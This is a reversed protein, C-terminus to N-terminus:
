KLESKIQALVQTKLSSDDSRFVYLGGDLNGTTRHEMNFEKFFQLTDKPIITLCGHSGRSNFNGLDSMGGHINVDEMLITDGNMDFGLNFRGEWGRLETELVLNLGRRKTGKHGSRNNFIYSGDLVTNYFTQVSNIKKSNPFTSSSFPGQLTKRNYNAIYVEGTYTPRGRYSPVINKLALVDFFYVEIDFVNSPIKDKLIVQKRLTDPVQTNDVESTTTQNQKSCNWSFILLVSSLIIILQKM